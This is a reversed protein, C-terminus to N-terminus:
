PSRARAGRALESARACPQPSLLKHPGHANTPEGGQGEDPERERRGRKGLFPRARGDAGPDVVVGDRSVKPGSRNATRSTLASHLVRRPVWRVDRRTNVTQYARDRLLLQRQGSRRFVQPPEARRRKAFRATTLVHM